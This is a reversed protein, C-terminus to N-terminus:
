GPHSFWIVHLFFDNYTNILDPKNEKNKKRVGVANKKTTKEQKKRRRFYLSTKKIIIKIKNKNTKGYKIYATKIQGQIKSHSDLM